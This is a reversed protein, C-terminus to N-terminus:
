PASALYLVKEALIAGARVDPKIGQLLDKWEFFLERLFVDFLELSTGFRQTLM